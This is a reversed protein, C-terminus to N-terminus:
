VANMLEKTMILADEGNDHYYRKRRGTEEFGHKLYMRQATVNSTRVELTIFIANLTRAVDILFLLLQEGVGQGRWDPHTAITAIHAEDFFMWMGAYGIIPPQRDGQGKLRRLLVKMASHGSAGSDRPAIPRAVFFHATKSNLEQLFAIEPWPSSFSAQDIPMVQAVDAATMREIELELRPIGGM